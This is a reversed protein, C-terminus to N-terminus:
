APRRRRRSAGREAIERLQRLTDERLPAAANGETETARVFAGAAEAMLRESESRGLAEKDAVRGRIEELRADRSPDSPLSRLHYYETLLAETEPDVTSELGFVRSTLLQDVQMGELPPLNQDAVVAGAADRRLLAVEGNQLGRLALPNHTSAVFQVQPFAERLATVIRMTWRPHLHADIEDILVIGSASSLTDWREFLHRMIDAGMGVVTQYGASLEGLTARHGGVDFFIRNGSRLMISESGVPLISQLARAATDFRVEDLELLWRGPYAVRAIPQLIPGIRSFRPGPNLSRPRREAYRLAGYALVIASPGHTGEFSDDSRRFRLEVPADQDWFWIVVAGEFAGVSLLRSPRTFRRAEDAGALALAIAQLVTSKGSANEGLLMLWPARVSGPEGFDLTLQRLARFNTIEVRRLPRATLRFAEADDALIQDASRAERPVVRSITERVPQPGDLRKAAEAAKVAARAVAAHPRDDAVIADIEAPQDAVEASVRALRWVDHRARVLGQRNLNLVKITAEGRPSLAEVFGTDVFKLHQAPDDYCPDVLLPKEIQRVVEIPTLVDARQGEVPFLSRKARACAPCATYLNDWDASLWGYHDASGEGSLNSADTFPRFRDIEGPSSTGLESECYGCKNHFLKLLGDRAQRNIPARESSELKQKRRVEAPQSYFETLRAKATAVLNPSLSPTVRSRDIKIM